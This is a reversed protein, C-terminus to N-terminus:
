RPRPTFLRHGARVLKSRGGVRPWVSVAGSRVSITTGACTDQTRWETGRVTAVSGNGRTRFKGGRDKGWLLRKKAKKKKKAATRARKGTERPSCALPGALALETMGTRTQRVIFKGGHFTGSQTKGDLQSAVVVKGRTADLLVGLPLTATGTLRKYATSPPIRYNVTGSTVRVGVSEGQVPGPPSPPQTASPSPPPPEPAPGPGTSPPIKVLYPERDLTMWMAGDPGAALALGDAGADFTTTAGDLEIRVAGGRVAAWIASDPGAALANVPTGVPYGLGHGLRRVASGQAYWIANAPGAALATPAVGVAQLRLDGTTTLRGLFGSAADVFWLAGDPGATISRPAIGAGFRTQDSPTFRTVAGDDVTMWLAGDSGGALSTPAGSGLVYPTVSGGPTLGAFGGTVLFWLTGSSVALGSPERDAPFGGIGGVAPYTVEGATTIRALRGPDDRLTAWLAGDPGAVISDAPGSLGPVPTVAAVASAPWLGLLGVLPLLFRLPGM